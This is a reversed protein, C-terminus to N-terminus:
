RRVKRISVVKRLGGFERKLRRQLTSKSKSCATFTWASRRSKGTRGVRVRIGLVKVKFQQLRRGKRKPCKYVSRRPNAARRRRAPRFSVGRIVRAKRRRRKPLRRLTRALNIQRLVRTNGTRQARRYAKALVARSFKKKLPWGYWRKMTRHLAGPRKIAGAIWRRNKRRRRTRM